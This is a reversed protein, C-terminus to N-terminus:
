YGGKIDYYRQRNYTNPCSLVGITQVLNTSKIVSKAGLARGELEPSIAVGYYSSLDVALTYMLARQYAPPFDIIENINTFNDFSREIKMKLKGYNSIPFITIEAMPYQPDYYIGEVYYGDSNKLTVRAYQDSQYIDVMRSVNDVEHYCEKIGSIPRYIDIDGGQGITYTKKGSELPLEIKKYSIIMLQENNWKDRIENLTLLAEYAEEDSLNEGEAKVGILKLARLTLTSVTIPKLQNEM